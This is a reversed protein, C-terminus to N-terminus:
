LGVMGEAMEAWGAARQLQLWVAACHQCVNAGYSGVCQCSVPVGDRVTVISFRGATSASEVRWIEGGLHEARIGAREARELAQRWRGARPATPPPTANTM